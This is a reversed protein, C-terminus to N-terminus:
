LVSQSNKLSWVRTWYLLDAIVMLDVRKDRYVAMPGACSPGDRQLPPEFGMVVFNAGLTPGIAPSLSGAGDILLPDAPWWGVAFDYM